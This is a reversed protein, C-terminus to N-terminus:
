EIQSLPSSRQLEKMVDIYIKKALLPIEKGKRQDETDGTHKRHEEPM